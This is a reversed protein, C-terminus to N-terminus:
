IYNLKNLKEVQEASKLISDRRMEEMLKALDSEEMTRSPIEQYTIVESQHSLSESSNATSSRSQSHFHEQQLDSVSSLTSQHYPSLSSQQSSQPSRRRNLLCQSRRPSAVTNFERSLERSLEGSSPACITSREVRTAM